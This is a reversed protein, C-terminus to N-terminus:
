IERRRSKRIFRNVQAVTLKPADPNSAVLVSGKRVLRVPQLNPITLRGPNDIKVKM